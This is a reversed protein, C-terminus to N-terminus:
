KMQTAKLVIVVKLSNCLFYFQHRVLGRFLKVSTVLQLRPAMVKLMVVSLIFPKYTVTVM